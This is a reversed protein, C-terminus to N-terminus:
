LYQSSAAPTTKDSSYFWRVRQHVLLGAFTGAPAGAHAPQISLPSNLLATVHINKNQGCFNVKQGCDNEVTKKEIFIESDSFLTKTLQMIM